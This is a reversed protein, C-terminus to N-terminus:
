KRGECFMYYPCQNFSIEKRSFCCALRPLDVGGGKKIDINRPAERSPKLNKEVESIKFLHVEHKYKIYNLVVYTTHGEGYSDFM